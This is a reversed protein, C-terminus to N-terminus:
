RKSNEFNELDKKEIFYKMSAGGYDRRGRKFLKAKLAGTKILMRVKSESCKLKEAVDHVDLLNYEDGQCFMWCNWCGKWEFTKISIYDHYECYGFRM